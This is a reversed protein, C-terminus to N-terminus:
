APRQCWFLAHGGGGEPVFDQSLVRLGGAEFWGRYTAADPHSWWMPAGGGLWDPETGTWATHGTTALLIGGPRLWQAIRRILPAQEAMPLHIFMYLSVVADFGHAPFSVETADARVFRAEPVLRQAREIQVGSLDVGTVAFGARVLARAVPLGCGCGLDLVAGGAPVRPILRGIWEGREGADDDDEARYHYSLADYGRRVLDKHVPDTDAV